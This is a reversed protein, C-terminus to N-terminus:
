QIEPSRGDDLLRFVLLCRKPFQVSVSGTEIVDKVRPNQMRNRTHSLDSYIGDLAVVQVTYDKKM